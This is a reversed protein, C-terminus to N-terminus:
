ISINKPDVSIYYYCYGGVYSTNLGSCKEPQQQLIYFCAEKYQDGKIKNCISIDKLGIATKFYCEDPNCGYSHKECYSVDKKDIAISIYSPCQFGEYFGYWFLVFFIIFSVGLIIM